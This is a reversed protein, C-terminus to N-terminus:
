QSPNKEGFAYGVFGHGYPWRYQADMRVDEDENANKSIRRVSAAYCGQKRPLRESHM